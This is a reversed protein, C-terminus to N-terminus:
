QNEAQEVKTGCEPCFKESGDLQLKCNKCFEIVVKKELITKYGAKNGSVLKSFADLVADGQFKRLDRCSGSM